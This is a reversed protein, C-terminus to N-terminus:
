TTGFIRNDTEPVIGGRASDGPSAPTHNSHNRPDGVRKVVSALTEVVSVFGKPRQAPDQKWCREMLPVVDPSASAWEPIEPRREKDAVSRMVQAPRM